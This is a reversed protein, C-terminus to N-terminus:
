STEIEIGGVLGAFLNYLAAGILGGIFGMVAYIIPLVVIAAIGFGGFPVLSTGDSSLMTSGISGVAAVLLGFCLGMAAAMVAYLKAVSMVGVRKIVM